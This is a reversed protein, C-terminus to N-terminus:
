AEVLPFRHTVLAGVDLGGNSTMRRLSEEMNATETWRVWGEPYKVGQQEYEADYRGPGYSRSVVVSLEKKMFEAYPFTTGTM